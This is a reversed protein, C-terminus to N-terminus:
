VCVRAICPSVECAKGERQQATEYLSKRAEAIVMFKEIEKIQLLCAKQM